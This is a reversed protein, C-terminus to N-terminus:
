ECVGWELLLSVTGQAEFLATGLAQSGLPPRPVLPLSAGCLLSVQDRSPVQNASLMPVPSPLCQITLRDPWLQPDPQPWQSWGRQFCPTSELYFQTQSRWWLSWYGFDLWLSLVLPVWTSSCKAFRRMLLLCFQLTMLFLFLGSINNDVPPQSLSLM